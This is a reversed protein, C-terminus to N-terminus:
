VRGMTAALTCRDRRAIFGTQCFDGSAASVSAHVTRTPDNAQMLRGHIEAKAPLPAPKLFYATGALALLGAGVILWWKTTLDMFAVLILGAVLFAFATIYSDSGFSYASNIFCLGAIIAPWVYRKNAPNM